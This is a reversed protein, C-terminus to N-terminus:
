RPVSRYLRLRAAEAQLQGVLPLLTELRFRRTSLTTLGSFLGRRLKEDVKASPASIGPRVTFPRSFDLASALRPFHHCIPQLFIILSIVLKTYSVSLKDNNNKNIRLQAGYERIRIMGPRTGFQIDM